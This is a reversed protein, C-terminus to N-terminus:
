RNGLAKVKDTQEKDLQREGGKEKGELSGKRGERKWQM